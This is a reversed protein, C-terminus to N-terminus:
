TLFSPTGHRYARRNPNPHRHQQRQTQRDAQRPGDGPLRHPRMPLLRINVELRHVPSAHGRRRLRRTKLVRHPRKGLIRNVAQSMVPDRLAPGSSSEGGRIRHQTPLHSQEQRPRRRRRPDHQLVRGGILPEGVHSRHAILSAVGDVTQRFLPNHRPGPGHKRRVRRNGTPGHRHNQIRKQALGTGTRPRKPRPINIRIRLHGGVALRHKPVHIRHRQGGVVRNETNVLHPHRLADPIMLVPRVPIHRPRLHRRKNHAGQRMRHRPRRPHRHLRLLRRHQTRIRHLQRHRHPVGRKLRHRVGRHVYEAGGLRVLRELVITGAIRPLHVPHVALPPRGALHVGPILAGVVVPVYGTQRQLNRIRIHRQPRPRPVVVVVEIVIVDGGGPQRHLEGLGGALRQNDVGQGLTLGTHRKPLRHRHRQLDGVLVVYRHRVFAFGHGHPM